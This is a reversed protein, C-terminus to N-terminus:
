LIEDLNNIDSVVRTGFRINFNTINRKTSPQLDINESIL